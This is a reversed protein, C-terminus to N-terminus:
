PQFRAEAVVRDNIQDQLSIIMENTRHALDNLEARLADIERQLRAADLDILAM